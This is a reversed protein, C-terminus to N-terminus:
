LWVIDSDDDDESQDGEESQDSDDFMFQSYDFNNEKCFQIIERAFEAKKEIDEKLQLDEQCKREQL